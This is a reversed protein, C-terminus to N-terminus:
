RVATTVRALRRRLPPPTTGVVFVNKSTETETVYRHTAMNYETAEKTDPISACRTISVNSDTNHRRYSRCRGSRWERRSATISKVVTTGLGFGCERKRKIYLCKRYNLIFDIYRNLFYQFLRYGDQFEERQHRTVRRNRM